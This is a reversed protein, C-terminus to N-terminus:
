SSLWRWLFFAGAAEILCLLVTFVPLFFREFQERSRRAPLVEAEKTEFLASEGHARALEDLELKELRESDELRMQVWSVAAVLIGLALFVVCVIGALSNTYRAVAFAAVGVAILMLLNALGNKQLNREM